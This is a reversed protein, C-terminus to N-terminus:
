LSAEVHSRMAPLSFNEPWGPNGGRGLKAAVFVDSSSERLYQGILRESRGDGYVDATDFFNVGNEVAARLIALSDDESVEGWSGGIQWTGLSVESFHAGINGFKRQKM